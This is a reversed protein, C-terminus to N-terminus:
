SGSDVLRRTLWARAIMWDRKATSVGIGLADAAEAVELGGFFRLEGLRAQRENLTALEDLADHLDLIDIFQRDGVAFADDLTIREWGGGGRKCAARDRAHNVLLRRMARAAVAFFHQRGEFALSGSGVLRVYAEHVLATAQLTHSPREAQMYHAALARLEDYVLPLLETAASSDGDALQGLIRTVDQAPSKAM